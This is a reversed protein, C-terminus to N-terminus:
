LGIQGTARSIENQLEDIFAPVLSDKGLLWGYQSHHILGHHVSHHILNRWKVALILAFDAEYLHIVRLCHIKLNGPEKLIMVNIVKQWRQFSYGTKLSHNVLDLQAQLVQLRKSELLHGEDSDLDLDHKSILAKHHGLHLGSPLTTTCEPWNELKGIWDKVTLLNPICDLKTKAKMHQILLQSIDDLDSADYNGELILKSEATSAAWDIHKSLPPITRPPETPKASTSATALLSTLPLKM